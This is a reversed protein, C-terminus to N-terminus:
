HGREYRRVTGLAYLLASLVWAALVTLAEM